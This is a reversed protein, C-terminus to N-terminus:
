FIRFITAFIIKLDLFFSRNHFYDMNIKVKDPFIVEDNYKKTNNHYKEKYRSSIQKIDAQFRSTIQKVDAQLRSSTQTVEAQLRSSM